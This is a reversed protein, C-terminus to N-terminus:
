KHVILQLTDEKIWIFRTGLIVKVFYKEIYMSIVELIYTMETYLYNCISCTKNADYVRHSPSLVCLVNIMNAM